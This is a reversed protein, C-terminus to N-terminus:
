RAGLSLGCVVLSTAAACKTGCLSSFAVLDRLQRAASVWCYLFFKPVWGGLSPGIEQLRNERLCVNGSLACSSPLKPFSAAVSPLSSPCLPLLRLAGGFVALPPSRAFTHIYLYPTHTELGWMQLSLCDGAGAIRGCAQGLPDRPFTSPGRLWGSKCLSPGPARRGRRSQRTGM